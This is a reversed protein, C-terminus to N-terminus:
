LLGVSTEITLWIFGIWVRGGRVGMRINNEWRCRPNGLSRKGEPKGVSKKYGNGMEEKCATHVVWRM